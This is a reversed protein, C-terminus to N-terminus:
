FLRLWDRAEGESMSSRELGERILTNRELNVTTLGPHADYWVETPLEHRRIFYKFKQEDKAGDLILWNTKPYGIGNSFVLNLGWGVKNIFDDMYSDLGGDYNSAFLLRQKNDLFVWRAFHITNVRALHGRNFIYRTTYDIVWLIFSLTWRRFLGPKLSGMASFQNSVFHDELRALNAAHDPDPRPAIEADSRERRRLQIVFIPLYLLLFPTLLLLVIPVGLLHIANSVRWSLPTADPETLVVRGAERERKVFSVLERRAETPALRSLSAQNGDIYSELSQRLADEERVQRMTRGIWNVYATASRQNHQKMWRALHTGNSFGQCHSFLRRLGAECQGALESMFSDLPGDFDCLFALYVPLEAQPAGIVGLDGRTQDKLLVLRAFHLREFRGFPIVDNNPNVVGERHNMSALLERLSSERSLDVPAIVMFYSQPTM